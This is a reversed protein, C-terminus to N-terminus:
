APVAPLPWSSSDDDVAEANDYTCPEGLRLDRGEKLQLFFMRAFNKGAASLCDRLHRLYPRKRGRQWNETDIFAIRGDTTLPVNDVISDLGRFHFLVYCLERLVVPDVRRYAAISDDPSLIDLREVALIHSEFRGSLEVIQKQPVVVRVLERERVFSRLLDAGLVRAQYNALQRDSPADDSYKKFLIGPLRPHSGVMIKKADSREVVDFGEAAWASRSRFM